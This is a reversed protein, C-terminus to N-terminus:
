FFFEHFLLSRLMFTYKHFFHCFMVLCHLDVFFLVSIFIHLLGTTYFLARPLLTRQWQPALQFTAPKSVQRLPHIKWNVLQDLGQPKSLSQCFHTDSASFYCKKLTFPQRRKHRSRSFYILNVYLKKRPRNSSQIFHRGISNRLSQSAHAITLFISSLKM